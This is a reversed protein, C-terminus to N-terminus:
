TGDGYPGRRANQRLWDAATGPQADGVRQTGADPMKSLAENTSKVADSSKNAAEVAQKAAEADAKDAKAQDVVAQSQAGKKRQYLAVAVFAMAVTGMLAIWGKIREWITLM